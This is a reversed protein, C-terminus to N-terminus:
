ESLQELSSLRYSLSSFTTAAGHSPLGVELKGPGMGAPSLSSPTSESLPGSPEEPIIANPGHSLAHPGGNLARGSALKLVGIALQRTSAEGVECRSLLPLCMQDGVTSGDLSICLDEESSM